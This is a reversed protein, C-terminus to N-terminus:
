KTNRLYLQKLKAFPKTVSNWGEVGGGDNLAILIYNEVGTYDGKYYVSNTRCKLVWVNSFDYPGEIDVTVQWDLMLKKEESIRELGNILYITDIAALPISVTSHYASKEKKNACFPANCSNAHKRSDADRFPTYTNEVVFWLTDRIVKFDYAFRKRLWAAHHKDSCNQFCYDRVRTFRNLRSVISDQVEKKTQGNVPQLFFILGIIFLMKALNAVCKQKSIFPLFYTKYM